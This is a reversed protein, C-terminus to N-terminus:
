ESPPYHRRLAYIDQPGLTKSANSDQSFVSVGEYVPNRIDTLLGLAQTLEELMASEYHSIHLRTSFVVTARQILRTQRNSWVTVRAGAVISGDVGKIGTGTIPRSGDTDIMYITIDPTQGPKARSLTIGAGAANIYQLARTIAAEARKARKGLFARDLRVLAVTVPAGTPWHLLPKACAQGPPAACAVVRYFDEDTLVGQTEVFEQAALPAAFLCAALASARIM